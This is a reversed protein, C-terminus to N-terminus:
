CKIVQISPSGVLQISRNTRDVLSTFEADDYEFRSGYVISCIINSVAYNIPQTTDFAEGTFLSITFHYIDCANAQCTNTIMCNPIILCKGKCKKFVEILHECEEIIKDESARKGMGFDRLNTLAFRRMEKWSDGNSWLVGSIYNLLCHWPILDDFAFSTSIFLILLHCFM